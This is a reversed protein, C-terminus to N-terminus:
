TNCPQTDFSGVCFTRAVQWDHGNDHMTSTSAPCAPWNQGYCSGAPLLFGQVDHKECWWIGDGGRIETTVGTTSLVSKPCELNLVYYKAILLIFGPTAHNSEAKITCTDAVVCSDQSRAIDRILIVIRAAIGPSSKLTDAIDDEPIDLFLLSLKTIDHYPLTTRTVTGKDPFGGTVPPDGGCLALVKLESIERINTWVFQQASM